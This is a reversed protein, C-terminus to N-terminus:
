TTRCSLSWLPLTSGDYYGMALAGADTAEVFRDNRGGNIQEQNQYFKHIVDRTAVSLPLNVPPADIRFPKNTFHSAAINHAPDTCTTSLPTPSNLNVDVQQLCRYATGHQDVQAANRVRALGEVKDHGVRDWGGYLNDFSHNEEYIVVLHKYGGPLGEQGQHGHGHHDGSASATSGVVGAAAMAAAAAAALLKRHM